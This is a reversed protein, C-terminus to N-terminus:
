CPIRRMKMSQWQTEMSLLSPKLNSKPNLSSKRKTMSLNPDPQHSTEIEAESDTMIQGQAVPLLDLESRSIIAMEYLPGHDPHDLPITVDPHQM